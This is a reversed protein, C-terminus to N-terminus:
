YHISEDFAVQKLHGGRKQAKAAGHLNMIHNKIIRWSWTRLSARTPDYTPLKLWLHLRLEQALDNIDLGKVYWQCSFLSVDEELLQLAQHSYNLPRYEVYALRHDRQKM